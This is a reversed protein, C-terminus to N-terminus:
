DLTKIRKKSAAELEVGTMAECSRKIGCNEGSNCESIEMPKPNIKKGSFRKIIKKGLVKREELLTEGEEMMENQRDRLPIRNARDSEIAREQKTYELCMENEKNEEDNMHAEKHGTKKDVRNLEMLTTEHSENLTRKVTTEDSQKLAEKGLGEPKAKLEEAAKHPQLIINDKGKNGLETNMSPAPQKPPSMTRANRLGNRYFGLDMARMWEGFQGEVLTNTGLDEKRQTCGRETHGILGCYFCFSQLNEYKFSIWNTEGDLRLNTGRMLPKELDIEVLVKIHRGYSSGTEPILIDKLTGFKKGIKRGTEMSMWHSPIDGDYASIVAAM